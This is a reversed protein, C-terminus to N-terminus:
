GVALDDEGGGVQGVVERARVQGLLPQGDRAPLPALRPRGIVRVGVEDAAAAVLVLALLELPQGRLAAAM